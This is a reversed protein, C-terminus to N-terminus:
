RCDGRHQGVDRGLGRLAGNMTGPSRERRPEVVRRHRLCPDSWGPDPWLACLRPCDGHVSHKPRPGEVIRHPRTSFRSAPIVAAGGFALNAFTAWWAWREGRRLPVWALALISCGLAFLKGAAWTLHFRAHAPWTRDRSHSPLLHTVPTVLACVGVPTLLCAALTLLVDSRRQRMDISRRPRPGVSQCGIPLESRDQREARHPLLAWGETELADGPGNALLTPM